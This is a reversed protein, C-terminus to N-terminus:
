VLQKLLMGMCNTCGRVPDGRVRPHLSSNPTKLLYTVDATESDIIKKKAYMKYKHSIIHNYMYLTMFVYDGRVKVSKSGCFLKIWGDKKHVMSFFVDRRAM